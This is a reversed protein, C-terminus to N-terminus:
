HTKVSPPKPAPELLGRRECISRACNRANEALQLEALDVRRSNWDDYVANYLLEAAELTAKAHKELMIQSVPPPNLLPM